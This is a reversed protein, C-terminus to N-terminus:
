AEKAPATVIACGKEIAMLYVPKLEPDDLVAEAAHFDPDETWEADPQAEPLATVSIVYAVRSSRLGYPIKEYFRRLRKVTAAERLMAADAPTIRWGSLM